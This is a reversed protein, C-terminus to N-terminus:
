FSTVAALKTGDRSCVHVGERFPGTLCFPLCCLPSPVLLCCAFASIWACNTAQTEVVTTTRANCCPCFMVVPEVVTLYLFGNTVRVPVPQLTSATVVSRMDSPVNPFHVTVGPPYQLHQVQASYQLLHPMQMFPLNQSQSPTSNPASHSPGAQGTRSEQEGKLLPESEAASYDVEVETYEPPPAALQEEIKNEKGMSTQFAKSFGGAATPPAKEISHHRPRLM